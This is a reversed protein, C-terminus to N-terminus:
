QWRERRVITDNNLFVLYKGRTADAGRNCSVVFGSNKDKRLYVVGPLRPVLTPSNDFFGLATARLKLQAIRAM